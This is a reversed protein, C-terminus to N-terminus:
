IHKKNTYLRKWFLPLLLLLLLVLGLWPLWPQLHHFPTFEQQLAVTGAIVEDRFLHGRVPITGDPAILASIGTNTSRALWRGQEVARLVSQQLHQEPASSRGFWADNSINVLLTAGLAVQKQALEPFIGEYCILLGQVLSCATDTEALGDSRSPTRSSALPTPLPDTHEGPTFNGIGQLLPRLFSLDLFPPVYEGFPVLHEKEYFGSDKGMPSILWARNFVDISSDLNKRFGPTGFLITIKESRAFERLQWPYVPDLEYNFPMCTEPWILLTPRDGEPFHLAEKSLDLYRKVTLGQVTPNWKINQDLNGQILAVPVGFEPRNEINRHQQIGYSGGLFLLFCLIGGLLLRFHPGSKTDQGTPTLCAMCFCSFAALVGSLGYAGIISAGQIWVPWPAFATALSLWPFGTIFWGRFVELLYWVLGLVLARHVFNDGSACLKHAIAAFIGGYIGVYAAMLLPCPVALLWSQGAVEHIPISLWYLCASSGALGCIWGLRFALKWSATATGLFYLAAPYAMALLPFQLYPNPFGLWLGLGGAVIAVLLNWRCHM